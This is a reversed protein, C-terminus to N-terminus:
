LEIVDNSSNNKVAKGNADIVCKALKKINVDSLSIISDYHSRNRYLILLTRSSEPTFPFVMSCMGDMTVTAINVKFLESIAKVTETGGWFGDMSLGKNLFNVCQMNFDTSANKKPKPLRPKLCSVYDSINAKIHDVVDERLKSTLREHEASKLVVQYLQHAISSFLCNGNPSISGIDVHFKINAVKVIKEENMAAANSMKITQLTIQHQLQENLSTSQSTELEDASMSQDFMCDDEENVTFHSMEHTQLDFQPEIELAILSESHNPRSQVYDNSLLNEPKLQEQLNSKHPLMLLQKQPQILIQSKPIKRLLSETSANGKIKNSQQKKTTTSRNQTNPILHEIDDDDSFEHQNLDRHYREIHKTLNSAVWFASNLEQKCYVGVEGKENEPECFICRLSGKVKGNVIKVNVLDAGFKQTEQHKYKQKSQKFIKNAKDFLTEKLSPIDLNSQHPQSKREFGFFYGASTQFLGKMWVNKAKRGVMEKFKFHSEDRETEEKMSSVLSEILRREGKTIEFSPVDVSFHGYFYVGDAEDFKERGNVISNKEM